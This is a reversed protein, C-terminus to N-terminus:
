TTPKRRRTALVVAAIVIIIVVVIGAYVLSSSSSSTTSTTSSVASTSTSTVPSSSTSSSSSSTSPTSTASTSSTAPVVSDLVNRGFVVASQTLFVNYDGAQDIAPLWNTFKSDYAIYGPELVVTNVVANEAFMQEAVKIEQLASTSNTDHTALLVQNTFTTNTPKLDATNVPSRLYRFPTPAYGNDILVMQYNFNGWNTDATSYDESVLNFQLGVSQMATQILQAARLDDPDNNEAQFNITVVTGNPEVWNGASNKTLGAQQLLQEAATTNYEYLQTGSGPWYTANNQPLLALPNGVNIQNNFLLSDIQEKPILYDLAQRFATNNWPYGVSGTYIFMQFTSQVQQITLGATSNLSAIDSQDIDAADISGSALSNVLASEDTFFQVTVNDPGPPTGGYYYPNKELTMTYSNATYNVPVYPSDGPGGLIPTTSLVNNGTFQKYYHWPFIFYLFILYPLLPDPAATTLDVATSNVITVNSIVGAVAGYFDNTTFNAFPGTPLYIDYSYYLDSSNMPVGDSWKLNPSVLNVIWSTDNSGPVAQPVNVIAPVLSGNISLDWPYLYPIEASGGILQCTVCEFFTPSPSIATGIILNSPTAASDTRLSGLVNFSFIPSLLVLFALVVFIRTKKNM